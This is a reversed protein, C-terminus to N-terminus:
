PTELLYYYNEDVISETEADQPLPLFTEAVAVPLPLFPPPQYGEPSAPPSAKPPSKGQAVRDLLVKEKIQQLQEKNSLAPSVNEKEVPLKFQVKRTDQRGSSPTECVAARAAKKATNQAKLGERVQQLKEKTMRKNTAIPGKGNEVKKKKTPPTLTIEPSDSEALSM